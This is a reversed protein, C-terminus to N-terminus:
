EATKPKTTNKTAPKTEPQPATRGTITVRRHKPKLRRLMEDETESM